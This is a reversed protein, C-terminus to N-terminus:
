TNIRDWLNLGTTALAAGGTFGAAIREALTADKNFNEDLSTGKFRNMYEMKEYPTMQDLREQIAYIQDIDALATAAALQNQALRQDEQVDIRDQARQHEGLAQADLVDTRGGWQDGHRSGVLALNEQFRQNQMAHRADKAAKSDQGLINQLARVNMPLNYGGGGGTLGLNEPVGERRRAEDQRYGEGVWNGHGGIGINADYLRPDTTEDSFGAVESPNFAPGTFSQRQVPNYTPTSFRRDLYSPDGGTEEFERRVADSIYRENDLVASGPSRYSTKSFSPDGQGM